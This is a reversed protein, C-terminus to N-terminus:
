NETPHQVSDIVLVTGPARTASLRLGAQDGLATFLSVGDARSAGGPVPPDWSVQLDFNGTLGTHDLVQRGLMASLSATLQSLPVGELVISGPAMRLGCAPRGAVPTAAAFQAACDITSATMHPGLRGDNRALTLALADRERTESHAMLAFRDHLLSRLMEQVAPSAHTPGELPPLEESARADIDFHDSASWGPAGVIEFSELGYALQLLTNLTANVAIFRGGPRTDTRVMLEGTRNPKISAVDFARARPSGNNQAAATTALAVTWVIFAGRM